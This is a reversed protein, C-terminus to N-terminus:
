RNERGVPLFIQRMALHKDEAQFRTDMVIVAPGLEGAMEMQQVCSAAQGIVDIRSRDNM